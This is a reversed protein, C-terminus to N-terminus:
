FVSGNDIRDILAVSYHINCNSIIFYRTNGLFNIRRKGLIAIIYRSFKNQGADNIQMDMRGSPQAALETM